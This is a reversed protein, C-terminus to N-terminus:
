FIEKQVKVRGVSHSRYMVGVKRSCVSVCHKDSCLDTGELRGSSIEDVLRWCPASYAVHVESVKQVRTDIIVSVVSAFNENNAWLHFVCLQLNIMSVLQYRVTYLNPSGTISGPGERYSFIVVGSSLQIIRVHFSNNAKVKSPHM